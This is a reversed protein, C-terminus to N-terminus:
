LSSVIIKWGSGDRKMRVPVPMRDKTRQDRIFLRLTNKGEERRSTVAFSIPQESLLYWKYQKRFRSWEYKEREKRQRATEKHEAHIVQLYKSFDAAQAAEFAAVLTAEPTGTAPNKVTVDASAPVATLLLGMVLLVTQTIRLSKM